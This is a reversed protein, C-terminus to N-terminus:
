RLEEPIQPVPLPRVLLIWRGLGGETGFDFLGGYDYDSFRKVALFVNDMSSPDLLCVQCLHEIHEPILSLRVGYPISLFRYLFDVAWLFTIELCFFRRRFVKRGEQVLLVPPTLGQLWNLAGYVSRDSFAISETPLGFFQSAREVVVGTLQSLVLKNLVQDHMAWLTNVIQAYAWSLGKAYGWLHATYMWLHAAESFWEPFQVLLKSFRRGLDSLQLEPVELFGLQRIAPILIKQLLNVSLGCWAAITALDYGQDIGALIVGLRHPSLNHHIHFPQRSRGM